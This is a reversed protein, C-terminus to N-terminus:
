YQLVSIAAACFDLTFFHLHRSLLNLVQASINLARRSILVAPLLFATAYLPVIGKRCAQPGWVSVKLSETSVPCVQRLSM